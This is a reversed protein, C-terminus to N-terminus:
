RSYPNAHQILLILMHPLKGRSWDQYFQYATQARELAFGTLSTDPPTTRFGNFDRPFHGQNVLLPYRSNRSALGLRGPVVVIAGLYMPHGSFKTLVQSQIRIHKVWDTDKPPEISPM